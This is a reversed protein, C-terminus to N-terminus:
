ANNPRMGKYDYKFEQELHSLLKASVDTAGKNMLSSAVSRIPSASAGKRVTGQAGRGGLSCM